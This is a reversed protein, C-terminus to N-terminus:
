RSSVDTKREIMLVMLMVFASLSFLVYVIGLGHVREAIRELVGRMRLGSLVWVENRRDEVLKGLVSLVGEPIAIEGKKDAESGGGTKQIREVGEADVAEEDEDEDEEDAEDPGAARKYDEEMWVLGKRSLDRLWLTGELDLLVLRRRSHKYRPLVKSVDLPPM